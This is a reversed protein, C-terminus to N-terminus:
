VVLCDIRRGLSVRGPFDKRAANLLDVDSTDPYNHLLVLHKSVSKQALLGAEYASMHVTNVARSVGSSSECLLLDNGHSFCVMQDIYACDGTFVCTIVDKTVWRSAYPM